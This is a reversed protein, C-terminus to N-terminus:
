RWGFLHCEALSTIILLVLFYLCVDLSKGFLNLIEEIFDKHAQASFDTEEGLPSFALLIRHLTFNVYFTAFLAIYHTSQGDLSWGDFVLAFADPLLSAIVKEVAM